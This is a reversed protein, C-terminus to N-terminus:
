YYIILNRKEHLHLNNKPIKSIKKPSDKNSNLTSYNVSPIEKNTEKEFDEYNVKMFM